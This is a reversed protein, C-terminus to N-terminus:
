RRWAEQWRRIGFLRAMWRLPLAQHREAIALGLGVYGDDTVRYAKPRPEGDAGDADWREDLWGAEVFQRLAPYVMVPTMITKECITLERVWEPAGEASRQERLFKGVNMAARDMVLGGAISSAIAQRTVLEGATRHVKELVGDLDLQNAVAATFERNAAILRPDLGVDDQNM